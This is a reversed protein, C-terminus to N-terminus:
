LKGKRVSYWIKAEEIEAKVLRVRGKKELSSLKGADRLRDITSRSVKMMLCAEGVTCLEDDTYADRDAKEPPHEKKEKLCLGMPRDFNLPKFEQLLQVIYNLNSLIDGALRVLISLLRIM